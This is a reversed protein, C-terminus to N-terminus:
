YNARTKFIENILPSFYKLLWFKLLCPTSFPAAMAVYSVRPAFIEWFRTRWYIKSFNSVNPLYQKFILSTRSLQFRRLCKRGGGGRWPRIPNIFLCLIKTFATKMFQAEDKTNPTTIKHDASVDYM